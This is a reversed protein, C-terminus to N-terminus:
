AIRSCSVFQGTSERYKAWRMAQATQPGYEGDAAVGASRQAAKLASETLSGFVGDTSLGASYCKNLVSQLRSVGSGSSGAQMWCQWDDHDAPMPVILTGEDRSASRYCEEYVAASASPAIVLGATLVALTLSLAGLIRLNSLRRAFM